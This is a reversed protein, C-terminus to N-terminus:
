NKSLLNFSLGLFVGLEYTSTTPVEDFVSTFEDGVAYGRALREKKGGLLGGTVVVREGKGIILSPGIFFNISQPGAGGIIPLGIGLSGGVSLQRTSQLYFHFFSTLMPTFQDVEETAIEGEQVFYSVPREFFQGFSLGVSTNIKLGGFVPIKLTALDIADRSDVKGTSDKPLLQATIITQDGEAELRFTEFFDNAAIAEYEYRLAVLEQIDENRAEAILQKLQERNSTITKEVEESKTVVEEADKKWRNFDSDALDFIALQAVVSAIEGKSQQYNLAEEELKQQYGRLEKKADAKELLGSLSVEENDEARFIKQLYEVSLAKIQEPQLRPNRKLKSLEELVIHNIAKAQLYADVDDHIFNLQKETRYMQKLATEYRSKLQTIQQMTKVDAGYGSGGFNINETVELSTGAMGSIPSLGGLLGMGGGGFGSLLNNGVGASNGSVAIEEGGKQLRADFLFNNFNQLHFVIQEGKRVKPRYITDGKSVYTVAKTQADLYVHLDQAQGKGLILLLIGLAIFTIKAM